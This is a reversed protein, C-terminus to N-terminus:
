HNFDIDYKLYVSVNLFQRGSTSIYFFGLVNMANHTSTMCCNHSGESRSITDDATLSRSTCGNLATVISSKITAKPPSASGIIVYRCSFQYKDCVGNGKLVFWIRIKCLKKRMPSERGGCDGTKLHQHNDFVSTRPRKRQTSRHQQNATDSNAACPIRRAKIPYM